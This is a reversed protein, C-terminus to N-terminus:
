IEAEGNGIGLQLLVLVPMPTVTGDVPVLELLHEGAIAGAVAVPKGGPALRMLVAGPHALRRCGKGRLPPLARGRLGSLSVLPLDHHRRRIRRQPFDENAAAVPKRVLM